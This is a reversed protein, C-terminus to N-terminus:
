RSRLPTLDSAPVDGVAIYELGNRRWSEVTMASAGSIPPVADARFVFLSIRHGGKAILMYAGPEGRWFVLRGGVLRLPTGALEPVEVAFPVRGEFWPKVTHRDTSVVDIPNASGVITSHMDVLERTANRRANFMSGALVFAIVAAAALGLPWRRPEPRALRRRLADPPAVCPVAKRVAHKLQAAAVLSNACQLCERVHQPASEEGDAIRMVQWESLHENM